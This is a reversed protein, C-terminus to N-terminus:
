MPQLDPSSLICESYEFPGLEYISLRCIGLVILGAIGSQMDFVYSQSLVSMVEGKERVWGEGEGDVEL